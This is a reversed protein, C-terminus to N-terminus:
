RINELQQQEVALPKEVLLPIKKRQFSARHEPYFAAPRAIIAADPKLNILQAINDM